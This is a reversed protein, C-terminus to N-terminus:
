VIHIHILSFKKGHESHAHWKCSNFFSFRQRHSLLLSPTLSFLPLTLPTNIDSIHPPCLCDFLFCSPIPPSLPSLSLLVSMFSVDIIICMETHLPSVGWNYRKVITVSANDRSQSIGDHRWQILIHRTGYHVHRLLLFYNWSAQFSNNCFFQYKGFHTFIIVM